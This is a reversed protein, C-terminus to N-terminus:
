TPVGTDRIWKDRSWRLDEYRREGLFSYLEQQYSSRALDSPLPLGSPASPAQADGCSALLATALLV